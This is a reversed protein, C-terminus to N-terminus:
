TKKFCKNPWSVGCGLLRKLMTSSGPSSFKHLASQLISARALNVLFEQSNELSQLNMDEVIRPIIFGSHIIVLTDVWHFQVYWWIEQNKWSLNTTWNLHSSCIAKCSFQRDLQLHTTMSCMATNLGKVHSSLKDTPSIIGSKCTCHWGIFPEDVLCFTHTKKDLKERCEIAVKEMNHISWIDRKSIKAKILNCDDIYLGM